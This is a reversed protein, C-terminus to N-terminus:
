DRGRGRDTKRDTQRDTQGGRGEERERGLRMCIGGTDRMDRSPSRGQVIGGLRVPLEGAEDKRARGNLGNHAIEPTGKVGEEEHLGSRSVSAVEGWTRLM